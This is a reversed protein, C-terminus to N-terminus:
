NLHLIRMFTSRLKWPETLWWLLGQYHFHYTPYLLAVELYSIIIIKIYRQTMKTKTKRVFTLPKLQILFFYLLTWIRLLILTNWNWLISVKMPESVKWGKLISKLKPLSCASVAAQAFWKYTFICISKNLTEMKLLSVFFDVLLIKNKKLFILLLVIRFNM